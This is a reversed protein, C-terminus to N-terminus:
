RWRPRTRTTSWSTRRSALDGGVAGEALGWKTNLATAGFSNHAEYWTEAPGRWYMSRESVVPLDSTVQTSVGVDALRPDEWEINGHHPQARRDHAHPHDARRGRPFLHLDRSGARRESERGPHLHRLLRRHRGRCPVMAHRARQGGGVLARRELLPDDRLVDRTGRGGPQSFTVTIGFSKNQLEPIWGAYVTFRSEPKVTYTRTIVGDVETLFQVTATTESKNPNALLIYTDFFGQSGEAFMWTTDGGSGAKEGHGGYYSYQDWFMTREVMVPLHDLSEVMTSLAADELGAIDDVHVDTRQYPDLTLYGSVPSAGEPFFTLKLPAKVPNPNALEIYLDFFDGTAGESMYFPGSLSITKVMVVFTDSASLAGDSVTM